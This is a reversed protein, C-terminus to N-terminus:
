LNTTQQVDNEKYIFIMFMNFILLSISGLLYGLGFWFLLQSPITISLTILVIGVVYLVFQMLAYNEQVMDALLPVKQKGVLPSFREYWVLFPVIKYMHGMIMSGFFGFFGFIGALELYIENNFVLYCLLTLLTVFSSSYSFVMFYWYVDYEKRVRKSYLIWIQHLYLVFGVLYLYIGLTSYLSFIISLCMVWLATQFSKTSFSHTLWFMPILILSLAMIVIVVFGFLVFLIHPTLLKSIDIQYLDLYSLAMAFGIFSGILLFLSAIGLAYSTFDRKHSRKLTAFIEFSFLAFALIACLGGLVLALSITFIGVAMLVAGIALLPYIIYYINLYAHGVEFVVPVLQAMSGFIIMMVFGLLFLHTFSVIMPDLHHINTIDVGFLFAVSLFLFALANVFYPLILKLPPAFDTAVVM